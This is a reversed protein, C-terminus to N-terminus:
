EEVFKKRRGLAEDWEKSILDLYHRADALRRELQWLRERGRRTSRVLGAGEM